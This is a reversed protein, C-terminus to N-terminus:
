QKQDYPANLIGLILDIHCPNNIEFLGAYTSFSIRFRNKSQSCTTWFNLCFSRTAKHRGIRRNAKTTKGHPPYLMARAEQRRATREDIYQTSDERSTSESRFLWVPMDAHSDHRRSVRTLLTFPALFKSVRMRMHIYYISCAQCEECKHYM